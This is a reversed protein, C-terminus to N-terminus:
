GRARVRARSAAIASRQSPSSRAPQRALVRSCFGPGPVWERPRVPGGFRRDAGSHVGRDVGPGAPGRCGPAAGVRSAHNGAGYRRNTRVAAPRLGPASGPGPDWERPRVPGGFRRDAGSHVGRDVGPGAPGRCGPLGAGVRRPTIGPETGVTQEPSRGTRSCGSRDPGPSGDGYECCERDAGAHVGADFPCGPSGRDAPFAGVRTRPPLGSALRDRARGRGCRRLGVAAQYATQRVGTRM